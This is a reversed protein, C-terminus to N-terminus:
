VSGSPRQALRYRRRACLEDELVGRALIAATMSYERVGVMRANFGARDGKRVFHRPVDAKVELRRWLV